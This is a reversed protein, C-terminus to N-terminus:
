HGRPSGSPLTSKSTDMLHNCERSAHCVLEGFFSGVDHEVEIFDTDDPNDPVTIVVGRTIILLEQAYEDKEMVFDKPMTPFTQMHQCLEVVVDERLYPHFARWKLIESFFPCSLYVVDM